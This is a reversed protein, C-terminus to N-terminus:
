KSNEVLNKFIKKVDLGPEQLSVMAKFNQGNNIEHARVIVADAEQQM